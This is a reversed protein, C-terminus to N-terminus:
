GVIGDKEIDLEDGIIIFYVGDDPTYVFLFPALEGMLKMKSAGLMGHKVSLTTIGVDGGGFEPDQDTGATHLEVNAEKFIGLISVHSPMLLSGDKSSKKLSIFPGITDLKKDRRREHRIIGPVSFIRNRSEAIHKYVEWERRGKADKPKWKDSAYAVGLSDGIQQVVDPWDFELGEEYEVPRDKFTETIGRADSEADYVRVRNSRNPRSLM